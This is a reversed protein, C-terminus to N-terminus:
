GAARHSLTKLHVQAILFIKPSTDPIIYTAPNLVVRSFGKTDVIEIAFLLCGLERYLKLVVETFPKGALQSSINTCYIEQGSGKRVFVLPIIEPRAKQQCLCAHAHNRSITGALMKRCRVFVGPVVIRVSQRVSCFCQDDLQLDDNFLRSM